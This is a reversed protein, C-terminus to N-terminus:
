ARNASPFNYDGPPSKPTECTTCTTCQVCIALSAVNYDGPPSKPTECLILRTTPTWGCWYTTIGQRPNLHKVGLNELSQFM